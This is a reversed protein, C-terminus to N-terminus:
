RLACVIHAFGADMRRQSIGDQQASVWKPPGGNPGSSNESEMFAAFSCAFLRTPGVRALKASTGIQCVQVSEV